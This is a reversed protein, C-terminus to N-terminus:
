MMAAVSNWLFSVFRFGYFIVVGFVAMVIFFLIGAALWANMRSGGEAYHAKLLNMNRRNAKFGFDFFDGLVPITGVLADVIINWIMKLLVTFSVGHRSITLIILGSIGLSALDGATPVLGLLADIGFKRNTFPIPICNDMLQAARDLWVLEPFQTKQESFHDDITTKNQAMIIIKRLFLTKKEFSL